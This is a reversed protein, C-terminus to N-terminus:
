YKFDNQRKTTLRTTYQYLMKIIIIVEAYIPKINELERLLNAQLLKTGIYIVNV